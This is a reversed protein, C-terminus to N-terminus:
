KKSKKATTKAAPKRGRKKPAPAEVDDKEAIEVLEEKPANTSDDANLINNRLNKVEKNLENIESAQNRITLLLSNLEENDINEPYQEEVRVLFDALVNMYNTFAAFPSDYPSFAAHSAGDAMNKTSMYY